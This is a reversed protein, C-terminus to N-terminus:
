YEEIMKRKRKMWKNLSIGKGRSTMKRTRRRRRRKM